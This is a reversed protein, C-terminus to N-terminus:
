LLEARLKELFHPVQEAGNLRYRAWSRCPGGVRIAIGGPLALFAAEDSRDDGVYMAVAGCPLGALERRVATGKDTLGSPVVEWVCKGPAIRLHHRWPAIADEVHEAVMSRVQAPAGRYHVAFTYEKDEIWVAPLRPLTRSLLEKACAVPGPRPPPLYGREWGYLGLYRVAPV